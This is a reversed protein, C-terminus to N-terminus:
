RETPYRYAPRETALGPPYLVGGLEPDVPPLTLAEVVEGADLVELELRAQMTKAVPHKTHFVTLSPTIQDYFDKLPTHATVRVEAGAAELSVAVRGAAPDM